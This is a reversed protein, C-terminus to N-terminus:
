TDPNGDTRSSSRTQEKNLAMAERIFRYFGVILGTIGLAVMWTRGSGVVWRDIAFGLAGFGIMGYIPDLALVWAKAQRARDRNQSDNSPAM